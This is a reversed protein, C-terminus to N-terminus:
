AHYHGLGGSRAISRDIVLPKLPASPPLVADPTVSTFSAPVPAQKTATFSWRRPYQDPDMWVNQQKAMNVLSAVPGDWYKPNLAWSVPIGIQVAEVTRAAAYGAVVGGAVGLLLKMTSM